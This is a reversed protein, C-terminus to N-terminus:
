MQGCTEHILDCGGRFHMQYIVLGYLKQQYPSYYLLWQMHQQTNFPLIEGMMFFTVVQKSGVLHCASNLIKRVVDEIRAAIKM